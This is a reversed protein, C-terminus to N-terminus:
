TRTQKRLLRNRRNRWDRLLHEYSNGLEQFRELKQIRTAVLDLGLEYDKLDYECIICLKRCLDDTLSEKQIQGLLWRMQGLDRVRRLNRALALLVCPDPHESCKWAQLQHHVAKAFNKQKEYLLSLSFHEEPSLESGNAHMLCARATLVALSLIDWQNHHMVKEILSANAFRLYDTYVSPILYSPIDDAREFGLVNRELHILECAQFRRKWLRRAVFLMDIHNKDSFPDERRHLLFRNRLVQTDFCKGNYTILHHFRASFEHIAELFAAEQSLDHLFFQRVQFYGEELFGLGVLFAITGTGGATGTTEIDLFVTDRIHFHDLRTFSLFQLTETSLQPFDKLDIQGHREICIKDSFYTLGHPNELPQLYPLPAPTRPAPRQSPTSKLGELRERLSVPREPFNVM